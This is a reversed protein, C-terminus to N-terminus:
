PGHQDGSALVAGAGAGAFDPGPPTLRETMENELKKEKKQSMLCEVCVDM